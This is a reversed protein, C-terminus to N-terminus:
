ITDDMASEEIRFDIKERGDMTIWPSEIIDQLTARKRPDKELISQLIDKAQKNKILDFNIPRNVIFDRLMLPHLADECPFRGTLLYYISIGLAWM